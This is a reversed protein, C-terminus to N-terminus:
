KVKVYKEEDKNYFFSLNMYKKIFAKLEASTTFQEDINDTVEFLTIEKNGSVIKYLLFDEGNEEQMNMFEVNEILSFYVTYNTLKYTSDYTSYENKTFQYKTKSLESIIFFAPKEKEIDTNKVWKGILEPKIKVTEADIPVKSKYPCAFLFISVATLFFISIHKTKM